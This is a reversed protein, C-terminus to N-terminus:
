APDLPPAGPPPKSAAGGVDGRERFVFERQAWFSVFFLLFDVPIKMWAAKYSFISYLLEVLGSGVLLLLAALLYYRFVSARGGHRGFVIMRNLSYNMCSSIVRASAYSLAPTFQIMGLFFAYFAYDVGFSLVSMLAFRFIVSFIRCADRLPKFHSGKNRDIYITEIEVEHLSLQMERLKLLMNMEYEFREGPIRLCDKLAGYPIGRLGTQTDHCTIGTIFQYVYRTVTNGIRSKMPAEKSFRRSGTVLSAPHARMAETVRLIDKLAHQGDADATILGFFSDEKNLLANVGTKLARGKGLNVAHRSVFCGMEEAADFYSRYADGSGDDVAWVDLGEGRLGRCLSVFGEAPKYAPLLVM